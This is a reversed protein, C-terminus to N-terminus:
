VQDALQAASASLATSFLQRSRAVTEDDKAQERAFQLCCQRMQGWQVDDFKAADELVRAFEDPLDLSIDWGLQRQELGRWPTQDSVLVPLGASWAELFVHGFNEGRTPLFFLDHKALTARVHEHPIGGIITADIHRPLQEILEQCM